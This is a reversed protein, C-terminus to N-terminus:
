GTLLSAFTKLKVALRHGVEGTLVFQTGRDDVLDKRPFLDALVPLGVAGGDKKPDLCSAEGWGYLEWLWWFFLFLLLLIAM